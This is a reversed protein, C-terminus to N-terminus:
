GIPLPPFRPESFLMKLLRDLIEEVAAVTLLLPVLPALAIAALTLVDDLNFPTSYLGKVLLFGGRRDALSQNGASGLLPEGAPPMGRVWLIRNVIMGSLMAGTALMVMRCTREFLARFHLGAM